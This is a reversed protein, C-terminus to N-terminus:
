AAGVPLTPLSRASVNEYGLVRSDNVADNRPAIVIKMALLHSGVFRSAKCRL